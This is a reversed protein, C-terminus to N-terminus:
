TQYFNSSAFPQQMRIVPTGQEMWPSCIQGRSRASVQFIQFADSGHNAVPMLVIVHVCVLWLILCCLLNRSLYRFMVSVFFCLMCSPLFPLLVSFFSPLSFLYVCASAEGFSPVFSQLHVILLHLSHLVTHARIGFIPCLVLLVLHWMTWIGWM